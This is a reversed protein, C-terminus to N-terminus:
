PPALCRQQRASTVATLTAAAWNTAGVGVGAAAELRQDALGAEVAVAVAGLLDGDGGAIGADLHDVLADAEGGGADGVGGKAGDSRSPRGSTGM